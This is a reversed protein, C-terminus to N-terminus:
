LAQLTSTLFLSFSMYFHWTTAGTASDVHGPLGLSAEWPCHSQLQSNLVLLLNGSLILVLLLHPGLRLSHLGWIGFVRTRVDSHGTEIGDTSNAGAVSQLSGANETLHPQDYTESLPTSLM